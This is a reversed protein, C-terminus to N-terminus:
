RTVTGLLAGFLAGVPLAAALLAIPSVGRWAALAVLVSVGLLLPGAALVPRALSALTVGLLGVAAAGATRGFDRLFLTTSLRAVVGAAAAAFLVPMTFVAVTAVVAGAPGAVRYGVFTALILVPGPTAYALGVAVTFQSPTVWGHQAVALREVLPLAAQGGGFAVLGVLGFGLGLALLEGM